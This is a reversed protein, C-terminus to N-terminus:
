LQDIGILKWKEGPARVFNWVEEFQGEEGNETVQAAFHLSGIETDGVKEFELVRGQVVELNLVETQNAPGKGLKRDNAMRVVTDQLDGPATMSKLESISNRNNADQMDRFLQPGEVLLSQEAASTSSTDRFAPAVPATDRVTFGIDPTATARGGTTPAKRKQHFYFAVGGAILLLIFLLGWPFGSSSQEAAKAYAPAASPGQGPANYAAAPADAGYNGNAGVSNGGTYGPSAPTNYAPAPAKDSSTSHGLAYGAVGALAAAGAVQAGSYGSRTDRNRDQYGRDQPSDYRSDQRSNYQNSSGYQQRSQSQGGAFNNAPYAPAAPAPAAQRRAAQQERAQSVANGRSMGLSQGGGVRAPAQTVNRSPAPSAARSSSTNGSGVRADAPAVSIALALSALTAALIRHKKM